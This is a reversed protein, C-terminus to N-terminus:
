NLAAMVSQNNLLFPTFIYYEHYINQKNVKEKILIFQYHM